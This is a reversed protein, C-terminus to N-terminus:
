RIISPEDSINLDGLALPNQTTINYTGDGNNTFNAALGGITPAGVIVLGNESPDSRITITINDGLLAAQGQRPTISDVSVRPINADIGPSLSADITTIENSSSGTTMKYDLAYM